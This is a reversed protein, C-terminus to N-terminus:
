LKISLNSQSIDGNARPLDPNHRHSFPDLSFQRLLDESQIKFGASSDRVGTKKKESNKLGRDAPRSEKLFLKAHKCINL